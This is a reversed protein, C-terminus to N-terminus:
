ARALSAGEALTQANFGAVKQYQHTLPSGEPQQSDSTAPTDASSESAARAEAAAENRIARAQAAVALDQSSPEAPALAARIVRDMKNVTAKPDNPVKSTDIQVEGGIAYRQGDPGTQYQYSGGRVLDGGVARHANEHDRVERDRAKLKRLIREDEDNLKTATAVRGTADAAPSTEEIRSYNNANRNEGAASPQAAGPVIPSVPPLSAIPSIM